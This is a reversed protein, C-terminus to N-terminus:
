GENTTNYSLYYMLPPMVPVQPIKTCVFLLMAVFRLKLKINSM